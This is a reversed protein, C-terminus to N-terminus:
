FVARDPDGPPPVRPCPTLRSQTSLVLNSTEIVSRARRRAERAPCARICTPIVTTPQSTLHRLNANGPHRAWLRAPAALPNVKLLRRVLTPRTTVQRGAPQVSQPYDQSARGPAVPSGPAVPCRMAIAMSLCAAALLAVHLLEVIELLPADHAPPGLVLRPNC